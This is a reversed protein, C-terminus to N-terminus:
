YAVYSTVVQIRDSDAVPLLKDVTMKFGKFPM